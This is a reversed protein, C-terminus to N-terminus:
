KQYTMTKQVYLGTCYTRLVKESDHIEMLIPPMWGEPKRSTEAILITVAAAQRVRRAVRPKPGQANAWFV